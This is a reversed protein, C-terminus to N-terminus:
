IWHWAFYYFKEGGDEQEFMPRRATVMIADINIGSSAISINGIDKSQDVEISQYTTEFGIFSYAILYEGSKVNPISFRGEADCVVGNLLSSDIANLLLANCFELAQNNNDTVKGSITHQGYLSISLNALLLGMIICKNKM